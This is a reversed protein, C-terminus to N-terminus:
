NVGSNATTFPKGANKGSALWGNTENYFRDIINHQKLVEQAVSQFGGIPFEKEPLLYFNRQSM